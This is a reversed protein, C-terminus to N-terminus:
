DLAGGLAGGLAGLVEPAVVACGVWDLVDVVAGGNGTIADRAM